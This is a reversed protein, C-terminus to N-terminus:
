CFFYTSKKVEELDLLGRNPIEPFEINPYRREFSAKLDELLPQSHLKVFQERLIKHMEEIDCAHTWYSDHVAAFHMGRKICELATYMLHTSDLSHIYNPPFASRQKSKNIPLRDSDQEVAIKQIVTNIVDLQGKSRYPQVVPLGMPTIWSVPNSTNAILGACNILWKKIYHASSFLDKICDLTTQALYYSAEYAEEETLFDKDRLQKYIQKRAGVFTVGYVSTMVTQKVVKRKINGSLKKAIANYKALDDNADKGVRQEVMRAVHSYLDGPKQANMLNVQMAGDKDRGIAAYHQLGNCSGDMHVHLHSIYDEPNELKLAEAVDFITALAQWADEVQIWERHKLPDSAWRKVNEFQSEAFAVREPFSLKDQGLLNSLHVKLWYWGTKGIKKSESYELLGRSIDAGMHNLHPPIPYIRGRFDVNHPFYIKEINRFAKAVNIKLQFDSRMSHMDRQEQIKKMLRQQEDRNKCEKLQYQYVYDKYDYFRRPIEGQGGGEEWIKEMVDFVKKNIRWATQSVTNLINYMKSLDSYSLVKEQIPSEHIRMLNTPRQYYGGIEYDQWPAPKYIMPLCRELHMFPSESKESQEYLSIIFDENINIVGVYGDNNKSKKYSPVLLHIWFNQENRIQITEKMLYILLSGIKLQITKPIGIEQYNLKSTSNKKKYLSEMIKQNAEKTKDALYKKARQTVEEESSNSTNNSNIKEVLSELDKKEKEKNLKEEQEYIYQLNVAEGISSFIAKSVISCDVITNEMNEASEKFKNSIRLIQKMLETLSLIAIREASLKTLYTAYYKREGKLEGLLCQQQEEKIVKCLNPFWNMIYRKAFGINVALGFKNLDEYVKLFKNVAQSQSEQELILQREFLNRKNELDPYKIGYLPLKFMEQFAYVSITNYMSDVIQEFSLSSGGDINQHQFEQLKKLTEPFVKSCGDILKPHLDGTLLGKNGKDMIELIIKLSKFIEQSREAIKYPDDRIIREEETIFRELKENYCKEIALSIKSPVKERNSLFENFFIQCCDELLNGDLQILIQSARAGEILYEKRIHKYQLHYLEQQQKEKEFLTKPKVQEFLQQLTQNNSTTAPENTQKVSGNFLNHQVDFMKVNQNLNAHLYKQQNVFSTAGNFSIQNSRYICSNSTNSLLQKYSHIVRNTVGYSSQKSIFALM